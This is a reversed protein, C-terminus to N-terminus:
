AEPLSAMRARVARWAVGACVLAGCLNSALLAYVVGRVGWRSGWALSLAVTLVANTAWPLFLQGTSRVVEVAILATRGLMMVFGALVVVWLKDAGSAYERSTFLLMLQTGFPLAIALVVGTLALAAGTAWFLPKVAARLQSRTALAGAREFSIPYVFTTILNSTLSSPVLGIQCLAAYIGLDAPGLLGQLTWRDGYASVSTFLSTIAIPLAYSWMERRLQAAAATSAPPSAAAALLGPTRRAYATQVAANILGGCIYGGLAYAGRAGFLAIALLACIPRAWADVGQYLAVGARRRVATSYSSSLLAMGNLVAYAAGGLVLLAWEIRSLAATLLAALIAAAAVLAVLRARSSRFAAVHVPLSSTEVAIPYFRMLASSLPSFALSFIVGAATMGLALKGYEEPRLLRTLLKVGGFNGILAALNGSGIALLERRHARLRALLPALM